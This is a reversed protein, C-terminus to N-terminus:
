YVCGDRHKYFIKQLKWDDVLSKYTDPSYTQMWWLTAYLMEECCEARTEHSEDGKWPLPEIM